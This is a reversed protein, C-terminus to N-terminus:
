TALRDDHDSLDLSAGRQDFREVDVLSVVPRVREFAHRQIQARTLDMAEDPLVACALRGQGLDEGSFDLRVGPAQALIAGLDGKTPWARGHCGADRQDM